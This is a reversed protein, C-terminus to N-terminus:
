NNEELHVRINICHVLFYTKQSELTRLLVRTGYCYGEDSLGNMANLQFLRSITVNIHSYVVMKFTDSWGGRRM